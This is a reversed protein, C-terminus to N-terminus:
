RDGRPLLIIIIFLYSIGADYTNTYTGIYLTRSAAPWYLIIYTLSLALQHQRPGM